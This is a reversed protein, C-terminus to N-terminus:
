NFCCNECIPNCPAECVGEEKSVCTRGNFCFGVACFLQIPVGGACMYFSECNYPHTVNGWTGLPCISLPDDFSVRTDVCKQKIVDFKLCNSPCISTEGTYCDIRVDKYVPHRLLKFLCRNNNNNGDNTLILIIIIIVFLFILLVYQLLQM